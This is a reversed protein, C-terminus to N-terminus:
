AHMSEDNNSPEARAHTVNPWTQEGIESDTKVKDDVPLHSHHHDPALYKNAMKRLALQALVCCLGTVSLTKHDREYQSMTAIFVILVVRLFIAFMGMCNNRGLRAVSQKWGVHLLTMVDLCTFIVAMTGCFLHAAATLIEDTLAPGTALRRRNEVDGDAAALFFTFAAGLVVLSFSYIITMYSWCVGADKHRRSAHADAEHPQSQFHLLQLIVITLVGAYFTTFFATGEKNVVVVLLSFISESCHHARLVVRRAVYGGADVHDM